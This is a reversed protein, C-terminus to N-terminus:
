RAVELSQSFTSSNPLYTLLCTAIQKPEREVVVITSKLIRMACMWTKVATRSDGRELYVTEKKKPFM